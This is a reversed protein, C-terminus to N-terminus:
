NSYHIFKHVKTKEIKIFYFGNTTFNLEIENLGEVLFGKKLVNGIINFIIFSKDRCNQCNLILNDGSSITPAYIFEVNDNDYTSTTIKNCDYSYSFIIDSNFEELGVEPHFLCRLVSGEMNEVGSLAFNFPDIYGLTNGVYNQITDLIVLGTSYQYSLLQSSVEVDNLHRQFTDMVELRITIETDPHTLVWSDGINANFNFMTDSTVGDFSVLIIDDQNRFYIPNLSIQTTDINFGTRTQNKDFKNFELGDILEIKNFEIVNIGFYFGSDFDYVWRSDPGFSNQSFSNSIYFLVIVASLIFKFYMNM